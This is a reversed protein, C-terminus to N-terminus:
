VTDSDCMRRLEDGKFVNGDRPALMPGVELGDDDRDGIMESAARLALDKTKFVRMRTSGDRRYALYWMSRRGESQGRFLRNPMATGSGLFSMLDGIAAAKNRALRAGWTSPGARKHERPTQSYHAAGKGARRIGARSPGALATSRTVVAM